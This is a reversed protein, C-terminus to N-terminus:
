RSAESCDLLLYREEEDNNIPSTGYYKLEATPEDQNEHSTCSDRHSPSASPILLSLKM